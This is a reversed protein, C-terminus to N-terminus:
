PALKAWFTDYTNNMAMLPVTPPGFDLIGKFAGGFIINASSDTAITWAVQDNLDGFSRAWGPTGDSGKFKAVFVDSTGGGINPMTM